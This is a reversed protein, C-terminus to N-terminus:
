APQLAPRDMQWGSETRVLFWTGVWRQTGSTKVEILDIAVAATGKVADSNTIENRALSLQQTAAFRGDINEGPPYQSRMRDTWLAAAGEFDRREVRQYFAAVTAAPGTVASAYDPSATATPAPATPTPTTPQPTPSPTPPVATPDPLPQSTPTPLAAQQAPVHTPATTPSPEVDAQPSPTETPVETVDRASVIAITPETTGVPASAGLDPTVTAAASSDDSSSAQRDDLLPRFLILGAAVVLLLAAAFFPVYWTAKNRRTRSLATNRQVASRSRYSSTSVAAQRNRPTAPQLSGRAASGEQSLGGLARDIAVKIIRATQFRERPDKAIARMVIAEVEPSIEPRLLRPPKPSEQMHSLAVAVMSEGSFPTRGTLLEYLLIGLSYIDSRGDVEERKAQEPSLYDATGVVANSETLQSMGAARAIGFDAVRVQENQDILVNHPKVDRHVVGNDHAEALADAIQSAIRLAADARMPGDRLLIEKLNLGAVYGMAIYYTDGTPGWDYVPVVNPHDLRAAAQAERKFREVFAPNSAFSRNLIKIAVPRNLVRDRALFVEAMGGLGIRQRVEYRDNIVSSDM